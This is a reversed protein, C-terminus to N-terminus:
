KVYKKWIEDINRCSLKPNIQHIECYRIASVAIETGAPLNRLVEVPEIIVGLGNAPLHAPIDAPVYPPTIVRNIGSAPHGVKKPDKDIVRVIKRAIEPHWVLMDALHAGDGYVIMGQQGTKPKASTAAPITVDEASFQLEDVYGNEDEGLLMRGEVFDVNEVYGYGSLRDRIQAYNGSLVVIRFKGTMDKLADTRCVPLGDLMKGRLSMDDDLFVDGQAMMSAFQRRLFVARAGHAGWWVHRSNRSEMFFRQRWRARAEHGRLQHRFAASAGQVSVTQRSAASTAVPLRAGPPLSSFDGEDYAQDINVCILGPNIRHLDRSIEDFYRIAAIAIRTGAPLNRLAEPPEVVKGTGLAIKGIKNKDKDFIREIKKELDPHWDLMDKIHDGVGYIYMKSGGISNWDAERCFMQQEETTQARIVNRYLWIIRENPINMTILYTKIDMFLEYNKEAVIIYDFGGERLSEPNKVPSGIKKYDSDVWHTVSCMNLASFWGFVQKGQAKAGYIGFRKGWPLGRLLHCAEKRWSPLYWDDIITDASGNRLLSLFRNDNPDVLHTPKLDKIKFDDIHEQVLNLVCCFKDYDKARFRLWSKATQLAYNAVAIWYIHYLERQILIDKIVEANKYCGKIKDRFFNALSSEAESRYHILREPLFSIGDAMALALFSFAIDDFADKESIYHIHNRCIFDRKYLCHWAATSTISFLNETCSLPSFVKRKPLLDKRVIFRVPQSQRTNEHYYYGDFMLIDVDNEIAKEYAHELMNLEFFDDSDLISLYRGCSEAIGMNRAAAADDTRETNHLIKIRSDMAAYEQMIAVTNDSSLDDVLIIEIEKLTQNVLTDLARRIYRESNYAAMIVSVKIENMREYM